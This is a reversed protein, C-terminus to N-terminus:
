RIATCLSVVIPSAGDGPDSPLERIEPIKFIGDGDFDEKEARTGSNSHARTRACGLAYDM